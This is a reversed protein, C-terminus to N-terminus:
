ISRAFIGVDKIFISGLEIKQQLPGNSFYLHMRFPQVVLAPIKQYIINNVSKRNIRQCLFAQVVPYM